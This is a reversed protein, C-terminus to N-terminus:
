GSVDVLRQRLLERHEACDAERALHAGRRAALPPQLLGRLEAEGLRDDGPRGLRLLFDVSEIDDCDLAAGLRDRSYPGLIPAFPVVSSSHGVRFGPEWEAAPAS